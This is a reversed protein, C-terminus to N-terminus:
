QNKQVGSFESCTNRYIGRLIENADEKSLDVGTKVYLVKSPSLYIGRMINKKVPSTDAEKVLSTDAEKVLSTDAEKVLLIDANDSLVSKLFPVSADEFLIDEKKLTSNCCGM